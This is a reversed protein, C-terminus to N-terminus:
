RICQFKLMCKIKDISLVSYHVLTRNFTDEGLAGYELLRLQLKILKTQLYHILSSKLYYARNAFPNLLSNNKHINVHIFREYTVLCPRSDFSCTKICAHVHLHVHLHVRKSLSNFLNELSVYCANLFKVQILFSKECLINYSGYGHTHFM